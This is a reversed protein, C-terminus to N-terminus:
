PLDFMHAVSTRVTSTGNSASINSSQQNLGNAYFSVRIIWVQYLFCDSIDSEKVPIQHYGSTVDFCSFLTVGAVADLCDSARPLPFADKVTIANLRRYDVCLRVKVSKKRVLVIPSAWPSSSARIIGQDQLQKIVKM